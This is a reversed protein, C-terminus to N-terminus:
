AHGFDETWKLRFGLGVHYIRTAAQMGMPREFMGSRAGIGARITLVEANEFADSDFEQSLGELPTPAISVIFRNGRHM